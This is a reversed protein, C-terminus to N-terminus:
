HVGQCQGCYYRHCCRARSKGFQHALHMDSASLLVHIRPHQAKRVTEWAKDVGEISALTLACIVPRKLERAILRVAEFDGASSVPFGTEIVDAGLKDLQKAIELKEELDLSTGAAQEGDRLTTDSIIVKEM